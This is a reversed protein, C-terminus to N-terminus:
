QTLIISKLIEVRRLSNTAHSIRYDNLMLFPTRRNFEKIVKILNDRGHTEDMMITVITKLYASPDSFIHKILDSEMEAAEKLQSTMQTGWGVSVNAKLM